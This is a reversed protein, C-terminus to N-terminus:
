VKQGRACPRFIAIKVTNEYFHSKKKLNEFVTTVMMKQDFNAKRVFFVKEKGKPDEKDNFFSSMALSTYRSQRCPIRSPM